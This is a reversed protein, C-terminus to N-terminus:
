CPRNFVAATRESIFAGASCLPGLKFVVRIYALDSSRVFSLPSSQELEVM